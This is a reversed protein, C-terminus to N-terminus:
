KEAIYRVFDDYCPVYIKGKHLIRNKIIAEAISAPYRPLGADTSGPIANISFVECHVAAEAQYPIFYKSIKVLDEDHVLIALHEGQRVNPLQDSCELVVYRINEENIIEFFNELTISPDICRKTSMSYAIREQIADAEVGKGQSEYVYKLNYLLDFNKEELKLGEIIVEEADNLRNEMIAIVAKMSLVQVDDTKYKEYEHILKHARLLNGKDIMARIQEKISEKHKNLEDELAEQMLKIGKAMDPYIDLAKKLYKIYEVTDKVKLEEAKKMYILMAAEEDKVDFIREDSIINENYVQSIYSIGDKLYRMFAEKYKENDLKGSFLLIKRLVRRIRISELSDDTITENLFEQIYDICEKKFQKVLYAFYTELTINNLHKLVNIHLQKSRLLYYLIESYYNPLKNFDIVELREIVTRGLNVKDSKDEKRILNLLAYIDEGRSFIDILMDKEQKILLMMDTEVSNTFDDTIQKLEKLIKTDYYQKIESFRKLKIYSNIIYPLVIKLLQPKHIKDKNELVKEYQKEKFYLTLLSTYAEEAHDITYTIVSIDKSGEFDEYHDLMDLFINFNKIAESKNELNKQALALYYYLDIYGDKVALAELCISEAEEFKNYLSYLGALHIYIYMNDKLVKEKKAIEYAALAANIAEEYSGYMTYSQALQFWYYLNEPNKELEKKLLQTNRIYKREMLEPDTSIYGYHLIQMKFYYIPAKIVPQEHIAGKYRFEKDKKFLRAIPVSTSKKEDEGLFNKITVFGTRYVASDKSHLFSILEESKEIVEDGDLVFIWEGSAYSVTINRMAAFDNNWQHFYVKDTYKKAIEVSNDKSGTDVIIIETEIQAQIPKISMLCKELHKSENKIMMVISLKM